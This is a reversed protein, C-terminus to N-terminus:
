LGPNHEDAHLPQRECRHVPISEGLREFDAESPFTSYEERAVRLAERIAKEQDEQSYIHHLPGTMVAIDFAQDPFDLSSSRRM